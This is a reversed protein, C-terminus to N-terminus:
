RAGNHLYQAEFMPRVSTSV